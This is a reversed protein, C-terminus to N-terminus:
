LLAKFEDLSIDGDIRVRTLLYPDDGPYIKADETTFAVLYGAAKVVKECKKTYDGFPYAFAEHSGLVKNARQLDALGKKYSLATFVGGHGITGGPRHMNYSHSQLNVHKYHKSTWLRGNKSVIIFATARVDYKEILPVGYKMFLKTGDDFTLVCSKKPLDIKGDVYDRVEQWTPFYYGEKVLYKLQKELNVNSICNTDINSPPNKADYVKHYMFVTLGRKAGAKTAKACVVKVTRTAKVSRGKSDTVASKVKYTGHSRIEPTTVKVDATIDNGKHDKATFGPESYKKGLEITVTRGGKLSITPEFSKALAGSSVVFYLMLGVAIIILAIILTILKGKKM